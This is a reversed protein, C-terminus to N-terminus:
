PPFDFLYYGPHYGCCGRRWPPIFIFIFFAAKVTGCWRWPPSFYHCPDYSSCIMKKKWFFFHSRWFLFLFLVVVFCSTALAMVTGCHRSCVLLCFNLFILLVLFSRFSILCAPLYCCPCWWRGRWFFSSFFHFWNYCLSYSSLMRRKLSLFSVLCPAALAAVM